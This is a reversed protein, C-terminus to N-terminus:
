GEAEKAVTENETDLARVLLNTLTIEAKELVFGSQPDVELQKEEDFVRAGGNNRIQLLIYQGKRVSINKETNSGIKFYDLTFSNWAGAKLSVTVDGIRKEYDPHTYKVGSSNNTDGEEDSIPLTDTLYFNIYVTVDQSAQIYMALSDMNIDKEFPIAVYVYDSQTVGNYVGNDDTLFDNRSEKNYFYDKVSYSKGGEAAGGIFILDGFSDYYDETSEYAGLDDCGCVTIALIVTICLAIFAM